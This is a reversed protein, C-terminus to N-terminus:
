EHLLRGLVLHNGTAVPSPFGGATRPARDAAAAPFARTAPLTDRGHLVSCVQLTRTWDRAEMGEPGDHVYVSIIRELWRCPTNRPKQRQGPPQDGRRSALELEERAASARDADQPRKRRGRQANAAHCTSTQGGAEGDRRGWGKGGRARAAQANGPATVVCPSTSVVRVYARVVAPRGSSITHRQAMQRTLPGTRRRATRRNTAARQKTYTDLGSFRIRVRDNINKPPWLYFAEVHWKGLTHDTSPDCADKDIRTQSYAHRLGKRGPVGSVQCGVRPTGGALRDRRGGSQGRAARYIRGGLGV